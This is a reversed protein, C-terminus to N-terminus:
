LVNRIAKFKKEATSDSLEVVAKVFFQFCNQLSHNFRVEHIYIYIYM